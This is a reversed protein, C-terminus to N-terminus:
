GFPDRRWRPSSSESPLGFTALHDANGPILRPVQGRQVARQHEIRDSGKQASLVAILHERTSRSATSGVRCWVRWKESRLPSDGTIAQGWVSPWVVASTRPTEALGPM